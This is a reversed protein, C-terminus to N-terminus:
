LEEYEADARAVFEEAAEDARPTAGAEEEGTQAAPGHTEGCAAVGLILLWLLARSGSMM